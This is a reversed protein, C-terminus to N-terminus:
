LDLGASDKEKAPKSPTPKDDNGKVKWGDDLWGQLDPAHLVKAEEKGKTVTLPFYM